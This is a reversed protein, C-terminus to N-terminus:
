YPTVNNLHYLLRTDAKDLDNEWGIYYKTIPSLMLKDINKHSIRMIENPYKEAIESYNFNAQQGHPYLDIAGFLHLLEHTIDSPNKHTILSFEVNPGNTESNFTFSRPREYYGNIFFMLSIHDTKYQDRLRAILQETNNVRIKSGLKSSKQRKIGRSAYRSVKDAWDMLQNYHRRKKSGIQNLSLHTLARREYFSYKGRTKHLVPKISLTIQNTDAQKQIWNCAKQVSDMTSQIDYQTFPHLENIDIFIAYLIVSDKLHGCVNRNRSTSLQDEPGASYLSCSSFLLLIIPILNSKCM